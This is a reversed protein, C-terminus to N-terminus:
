QMYYKVDVDAHALLLQIMELNRTDVAMHLATEGVKNSMNVAMSGHSFLLKVIGYRIITNDTFDCFNMACHLPTNGKNDQVNVIAAHALLLKVM